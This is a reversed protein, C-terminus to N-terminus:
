VKVKKSGVSEEDGETEELSRKAGKSLVTPIEPAEEEETGEEEAYEEDDGEELDQTGNEDALLFATLNQANEDDDEEDGDEDAYEADDEEVGNVYEVDKEDEVEYEDSEDGDDGVDDAGNQSGNRLGEASDVATESKELESKPSQAIGNEAKEVAAM